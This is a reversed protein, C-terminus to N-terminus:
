EFKYEQVKNKSPGAVCVITEGNKRFKLQYCEAGPISELKEIFSKLILGQNSSCVKDGVICFARM